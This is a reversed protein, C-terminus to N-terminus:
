VATQQEDDIWMDPWWLNKKAKNEVEPILNLNAMCHLGCCLHSNLPVQHDVQWNFGTMESRLVALHYIEKLFMIEFEDEAWKPTARLKSARRKASKANAKDRTRRTYAQSAAKLKARYEPDLKKQKTKTSRCMRCVSYHGDAGDANPFFNDLSLVEGCSKCHKHGEPVASRRNAVRSLMKKEIICQPCSTQGLMHLGAPQWFTSNHKTCIVQVEKSRGLYESLSYDYEVAQSNKSRTIFDQQTLKHSM